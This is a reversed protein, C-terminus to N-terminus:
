ATSFKRAEANSTLIALNSGPRSASHALRVLYPQTPCNAFPVHRHHDRLGSVPVFSDQRGEISVVLAAQVIYSSDRYENVSHHRRQM